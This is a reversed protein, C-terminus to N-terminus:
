KYDRVKVKTIIRDGNRAFLPVQPTGVLGEMITDRNKAVMSFLEAQVTKEAIKIPAAYMLIPVVPINFHDAIDEIDERKLWWDGIKVDFLIFGVGDSIYNGGGKQIGVGYGEGYLCVEDDGFKDLFASINPFLDNLKNLLTAPIQANDTRGGFKLHNPGHRQGPPEPCFYQIRINTGDIKETWTWDNDALYGFEPRSWDGILFNGKQDRKYISDIKHYSNMGAM